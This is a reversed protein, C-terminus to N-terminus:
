VLELITIRNGNFVIEEGVRQGTLHKGLPAQPNLAFVTKEEVNFQGLGVSLFYWGLTTQILSGMGVQNHKVTPNIQNLKLKMQLFEGLQRSLKEQELQVMARATEHKDGASSKTDSHLSSKVEEAIRELEIIKSNIKEIAQILVTQKLM